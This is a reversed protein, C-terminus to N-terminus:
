QGYAVNQAHLILQFKSCYKYIGSFFIIIVNETEKREDEKKKKEMM